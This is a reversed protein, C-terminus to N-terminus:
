YNLALLYIHLIQISDFKNLDLFLIQEPILNIHHLKKGLHWDSTHIIKLGM